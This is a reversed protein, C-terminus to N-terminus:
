GALQAKLLLQQAEETSQVPALKVILDLLLNSDNITSVFEGALGALSLFRGFVIQMVKQRIQTLRQAKGEAEGIAIAKTIGEKLTWQYVPSVSFKDDRTKNYRWISSTLM